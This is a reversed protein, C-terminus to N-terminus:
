RRMEQGSAAVRVLHGGEGHPGPILALGRGLWVTITAVQESAVDCTEVTETAAGEPPPEYRALFELLRLLGTEGRYSASACGRRRIEVEGGARIVHAALSAVFRIAEELGEIEDPTSPPRAPDELALTVRTGEEAELEKVMPRDLKASQKWHILRPDDGVRFPRLDHLEAGLGRVPRASVGAEGLAQGLGVPLQDIRPLVLVEEGREPQTAKVFLGFPFITTSQIAALRNLGRREFRAHYAVQAVGGPALHPLYALLRPTGTSDLERFRLSFSRLHHKRNSVLLRGLASQGAFMPGALDRRLTVGRLCQESLVGSVVIGALMMSLILYLLNNGTNTAAVGVAMVAALYWWGERTPRLTRPPRLWSRLRARFSKRRGM